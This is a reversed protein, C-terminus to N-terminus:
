KEAKVIRKVNLAIGLEGSEEAMISAIEDGLSEPLTCRFRPKEAQLIEVLKGAAEDPTMSPKKTKLDDIWNRAFSRDLDNVSEDAAVDELDGFLREQLQTKMGGPEVMVINISFQRAVPVLSEFFGEIAFKSACYVELLPIGTRGGRSSVTLIKGKHRQKMHPMVAQTLRIVGITNINFMGEITSRPMTDMYGCSGIGAINLLIDIRDFRHLVTQVVSQVDEDKTIDMKMIYATNELHAGIAAVLDDKEALSVVTAIVIYRQDPDQALRAATHLGLGSVCGTVLVVEQNMM